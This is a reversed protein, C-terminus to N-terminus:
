RWVKEFCGRHLFVETGRKTKIYEVDALEDSGRIYEKCGPCIACERHREKYKELLSKKKKDTLEIM